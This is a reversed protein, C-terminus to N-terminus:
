VAHPEIGTREAMAAKILVAYRNLGWESKIGLKDRLRARHFEVTKVSVQLLDAIAATSKGEGLMTLIQHQRPTLGALAQHSAEMGSRQTHSPIHPSIHIKGTLVEAIAILLEDDTCDKSVYGHAGGHIATEALVRDAHMTLILIKLAPRVMRLEPLIDLGSRGPMSLDLLVGDPTDRALLELVETGSHAIGVVDYHPALLLALGQAFLHHDDAVILRRRPEM